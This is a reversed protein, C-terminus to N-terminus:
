KQKPREAPLVRDDPTVEFLRLRVGWNILRRIAAEDCYGSSCLLEEVEKLEVEGRERLAKLLEAFPSMEALRQGLEGKVDDLDGVAWSRGLETLQLDGQEAEVLGLAKAAEIALSLDGLDIEVEEDVKYADVRGGMAYLVRVLGAVQDLSAPPFQPRHHEGM